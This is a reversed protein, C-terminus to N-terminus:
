GENSDTQIQIQTKPPPTKPLIIRLFGDSYQADIANVDYHGPLYVESIFDGYQIELCHSRARRATQNRRGTIRLVRDSFTVRIKDPEMGAVEVVIEIHDETEYVDTPPRWSQSNQGNELLISGLMRDMSRSFGLLDEFSDRYRAM